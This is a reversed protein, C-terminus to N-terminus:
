FGTMDRILKKLESIKKTCRDLDEELQNKKDRDVTRKPKEPLRCLQAEIMKKNDQEVSLEKNLDSIKTQNREITAHAPFTTINQAARQPTNASEVRKADILVPEPKKLINASEIRRYDGPAPDELRHQEHYNSHLSRHSATVQHLYENTFKDSLKKIDEDFKYSQNIDRIDRVAQNELELEKIRFKYKCVEDILSEASKKMRENAARLQDVEAVRHEVESLRRELDRCRDDSVSKDKILADYKMMVARNTHHLRDIEILYEKEKMELRLVDGKQANLADAVKEQEQRMRNLKEATMLENKKAQNYSTELDDIMKKYHGITQDYKHELEKVGTNSSAAATRKSLEREYRDVTERLEAAQQKCRDVEFQTDKACQEYFLRDKEKLALDQQMKKIYDQYFRILSIIVDIEEQNSDHRMILSYFKQLISEISNDDAQQKKIDIMSDMVSRYVSEREDRRISAQSNKDSAFYNPSNVPYHSHDEHDINYSIVSSNRESKNRNMIETLYRQIREEKEDRKM